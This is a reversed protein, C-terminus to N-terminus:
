NQKKSINNRKMGCAYTEVYDFSFQSYLKDAPKNAILITYSDEDNTKKLYSDIEKMVMKGLGRGQFKTDVMIDSVVYTIGGDGVVRGFAILKGSERIGITFLSNQLAKESNALNKKGMGSAIRLSIYEEGSPCKYDLEM